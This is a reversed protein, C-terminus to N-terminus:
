GLTKKMAEAFAMEALPQMEESVKKALYLGPSAPIIWGQSGEIMIRFTLFTSHSKGGPTKTDFRYMNGYKSEQDKNALAFGPLKGGWQYKNQSILFASKTATNSMFPTQKKLVRMGMPSISTVEGSPRKSQGVISSSAMQSALEYVSTPMAPALADNGPTNHQFPIVLFRRGDKTRRVKTSTNLMQKLDRPPRGTEIEEAYKYDSWVIASFAGTMRMQISQIYPDKEGSWLKARYVAKQWDIVTQQAIVNVAQSVLPLLKGSIEPRANMVSPLTVSIKFEAM